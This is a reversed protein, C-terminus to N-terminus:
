GELRESHDPPDAKAAASASLLRDAWAFLKEMASGNSKPLPEVVSMERRARPPLYKNTPKYNMDPFLDYGAREQVLTSVASTPDALDGFSRAGTPCAKVCAPV